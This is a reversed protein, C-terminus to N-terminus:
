IFDFAILREEELPAETITSISLAAAFHLVLLPAVNITEPFVIAEKICDLLPLLKLPKSSSHSVESASAELPDVILMNAFLAIVAFAELPALTKYLPLGSATVLFALEPPLM